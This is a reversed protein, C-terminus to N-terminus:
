WRWQCREERGGAHVNWRMREGHTGGARGRFGNGAADKQHRCTQAVGKKGVRRLRRDLDQFMGAALHDEWLILGTATLRGEIAAVKWHGAADGTVRLRDKGALERHDDGRTGAGRHMHMSVRKLKLAFRVSPLEIIQAVAGPLKAVKQDV